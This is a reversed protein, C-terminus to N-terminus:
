LKDLFRDLPPIEPALGKRKRVSTVLDQAKSGMELPDEQMTEWHDFVLQPFAKGSTGARLAATFGFSELVPLYAKVNLLPTGTRPIQETVIGRRQNIVNYVGSLVNDPCQIDVLYVPEQLRPKATLQSAYFVRRASPIIQGGGRHIADSHLVADSLSFKIGRMHEEALVGSATVWQFGAVVNDRIENLYAVGRTVDVLINAGKNEPGFCWVKKAETVDWQWETVLKKAIDKGDGKNSRFDGAEISRAFAEDIPAASCYLRNHANPSKSLCIKESAALVTEKLTVVPPSVVIEAQGMFDRLDGLCIEMHLEGACAIVHEGTDEMSCQVLQDSKNLRKLAEVLKNIDGPNAPAVAVRVVPSVSYKMNTLPFSDKDSVITGSKALFSDIGVLACTNGAPVSNIPETKGGMMLVVRQIPKDVFLDDKQGPVYNNGMIRVKQTTVTGSFVRGFAYFRSNDKTPILKSIFMVLPGQPDCKRIAAATEDDLSGTYLTEVRYKQAEIPSPLHTVMMELLANAAPLWKMMVCKMLEKGVNSEKESQALSFGLVNTLKDLEEHNNNVAALLVKGLPELVFKCFGRQLKQGSPSIPSTTWKKLEPDFYNEGWLKQVLKSESIGFKKSYFRAFDMLTFAWGHRGASFAVNCREPTLTCDGLAEDEYTTIISNVSAISKHFSQYMEEPTLQLELFARDLKNITLVPKIREALAQRLVTETQVCCGDVCDVLVLAGDTLRLAATVESSFDVHGPSDILNFLFQQIGSPHKFQTEATDFLLSVGTSKITIGKEQEDKRTDTGRRDGVDKLAIIENSALLSDTLTSKGHDVHAIVSMNRISSPNDMLARLMEVTVRRKNMM